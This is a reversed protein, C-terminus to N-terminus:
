LENKLVGVISFVGFSVAFLSFMYCVLLIFPNLINSLGIILFLFGILIILFPNQFKNIQVYKHNKMDRALHQHCWESWKINNDEIFIREQDNPKFTLPHM